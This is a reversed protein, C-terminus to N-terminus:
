WQVRESLSGRDESTCTLSLAFPGEDLPLVGGVVLLASESDGEARTLKGLVIEFRRESQPM